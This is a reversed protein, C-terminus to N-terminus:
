CTLFLRTEKQIFNIKESIQEQKLWLSVENQNANIKNEFGYWKKDELWM